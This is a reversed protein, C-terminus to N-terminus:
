RRRGPKPQISRPMDLTQPRLSEQYAAAFAEVFTPPLHDDPRDLLSRYFATFQSWYQATDAKGRGGRAFRAELEAPDLRGLFEIFAARLAQALAQEHAKIEDHRERLWRVADIAHAEHQGFLELLLDEVALQGLTPGEPPPSPPIRFRERIQGRSRELDKLGVLTERLLRGALHMLAPAQAGLQQPKLGAGRCFAQWESGDTPAPTDDRAAARALRSLRRAVTDDGAEPVRAGPPASASPYPGPATARGQGFANGPQMEGTGGRDVALLDELDLEAGIDTQAGTLPRVALIRSPLLAASDSTPSDELSVGIQYEGIRLVDGDRLRYGEPGQRGLPEAADNVYIGNTSIDELYFRGERWSIRAHHASVYRRADPLVWDNDASRGITGGGPGIEVSDRGALQRRQGSIVRLRLTM